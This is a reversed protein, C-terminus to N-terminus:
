KKAYIPAYAMGVPLQRVFSLLEQTKNHPVNSGKRSQPKAGSGKCSPRKGMTRM